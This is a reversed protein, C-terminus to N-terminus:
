FIGFSDLSITGKLEAAAKATVGKIGDVKKKNLKIQSKQAHEDWMERVAEQQEFEEPLGTLFFLIPRFQTALLAKDLSSAKKIAKILKVSHVSALVALKAEMIQADQLLSYSQAIKVEAEAQHKMARAIYMNGKRNTSAIKANTDSTAGALKNYGEAIMEDVGKTDEKVKSIASLDQANTINQIQAQLLKQKEKGDAAIRTAISYVEGAKKNAAIAEADLILADLAALRSELILRTSEGYTKMMGKQANAIIDLGPYQSMDISRIQSVVQCSTLMSTSYIMSLGVLAMM